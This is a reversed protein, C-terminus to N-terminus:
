EAGECDHELDCAMCEWLAWRKGCTDCEAIAGSDSVTFGDPRVCTQHPACWECIPKGDLGTEIAGNGCACLAPCGEAHPGSIHEGCDECYDGRM